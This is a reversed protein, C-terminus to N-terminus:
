NIRRYNENSNLKSYIMIQIGIVGILVVVNYIYIFRSFSYSLKLSVYPLALSSLGVYWPSLWRTDCISGRLAPNSCNINPEHAQYSLTTIIYLSCTVSRHGSLVLFVANCYVNDVDWSLMVYSIPSSVHQYSVCVCVCLLVIVFWYIHAMLSLTICIFIKM